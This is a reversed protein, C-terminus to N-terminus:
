VVVLVCLIHLISAARAVALWRAVTASVSQCLWGPGPSVYLSLSLFLAGMIIYIVFNHDDDDVDARARAIAILSRVSRAACAKIHSSRAAAELKSRACRQM